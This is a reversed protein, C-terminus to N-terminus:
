SKSLEDIIQDIRTHVRYLEELSAYTAKAQENYEKLVLLRRDTMMKLEAAAKHYPRGTVTLAVVGQAIKSQDIVDALTGMQQIPAEEQIM